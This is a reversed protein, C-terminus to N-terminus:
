SIGVSPEAAKPQASIPAHSSVFPSSSNVQMLAMAMPSPQVGEAIVTHSMANSDIGQPLSVFVAM